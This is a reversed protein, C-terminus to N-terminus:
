AVYFHCIELDSITFLLFDTNELNSLIQRKQASRFVFKKTKINQLVTSCSPNIESYKTVEFHWIKFLEFIPEMSSTWRISKQFYRLRSRRGISYFTSTRQQLHRQHGSGRSWAQWRLQPSTIRSPSILCNDPRSRINAWMSLFVDVRQFSAIFLFWYTPVSLFANFLCVWENSFGTNCSCSHYYYRATFTGTKWRRKM